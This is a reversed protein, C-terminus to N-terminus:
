GNSVELFEFDGEDKMLQILKEKAKNVADQDYEKIKKGFNPALHSVM